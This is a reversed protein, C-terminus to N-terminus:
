TPVVERPVMCALTGANVHGAAGLGAVTQASGGVYVETGPNDFNMHDSANVGYAVPNAWFGQGGSDLWVGYGVAGQNLTHVKGLLSCLSGSGVLVVCANPRQEDALLLNANTGVTVMGTDRAQFTVNNPIGVLFQSLVNYSLTVQGDRGASRFQNHNLGGTYYLGGDQVQYTGGALSATFCNVLGSAGGTNHAASGTICHYLYYPTSAVLSLGFDVAGGLLACDRVLVGDAYGSALRHAFYVPGGELKTLDSVVFTDGNSPFGNAFTDPNIFTPTPRCVKAGLDKAIWGSAGALAGSTLEVVKDVLSTAGPGSDSWSAGTLTADEFEGPVCPSVTFDYGALNSVVGTHLATRTGQITLGFPYSGLIPFGPEDLDTELYVLSAVTVTDHGIRSSWEAFSKLATLSTEGDNQDNGTTANIYWEAQTLYSSGSGGIPEVSGDPAKTALSDLDSSFFLARGLVPATVSANTKPQYRSAEVVTSIAVQTVSLTLRYVITSDVTCTIVYFGGVDPTFVPTAATTSSLESRVTSASPSSIGWSFTTGAPDVSLTVREATLFGAFTNIPATDAPSMVVSTSNALIGAM